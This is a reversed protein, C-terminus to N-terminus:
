FTGIDIKLKGSHYDRHCKDCLTVINKRSAPGGESLYIVHHGNAKSCYQGCILCINGDRAKGDRQTKQHEYDREFFLSM